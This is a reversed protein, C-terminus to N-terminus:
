FPPYDMEMTLQNDQKVSVITATQTNETSPKMKNTSMLNHKKKIIKCRAKSQIVSDLTKLKSIKSSWVSIINEM